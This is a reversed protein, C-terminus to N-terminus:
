AENSVRQMPLDNIRKTLLDKKISIEYPQSDSSKHSLRAQGMYRMVKRRAVCYKNRHKPVFLKLFYRTTNSIGCLDEVKSLCSKCVFCETQTENM